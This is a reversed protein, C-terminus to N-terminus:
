RAHLNTAFYLPMIEAGSLSSTYQNYVTNMHNRDAQIEYTLM